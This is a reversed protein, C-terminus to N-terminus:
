ELLESRLALMEAREGDDLTPWRLPLERLTRVVIDAVCKRAYGKDDAPIAYWPATERSTANLAEEYARMYKSWLKSEVLDGPAFKWHKEPRDIRARFRAHQQRQSVNLWFKIVVTGNCSLHREHARISEFREDWITM